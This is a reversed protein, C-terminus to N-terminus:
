GPGPCQVIVHVIGLDPRHLDALQIGFEKCNAILTEIQKRAIEDTVNLPNVTPVNHDMTAFTLEPRRVRRGALRLGEFAQPSTVEHVLHLDIYLLSPKDAEAVVVHQDWIKEFLTKPAM